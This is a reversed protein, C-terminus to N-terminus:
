DVEHTERVVRTKRPRPAPHAEERRDSTEASLPQRPGEKPSPPPASPRDTNM